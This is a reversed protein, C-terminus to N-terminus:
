FLCFFLIMLLLPLFNSLLSLWIRGSSTDKVELQVAAPDIVKLFDSGEEKRSVFSQGDRYKVTLKADEIEIKQVKGEKADNLVQTLPIEKLPEQTKSFSLFFSVGLFIILLYFILNKLNFRFQYRKFTKKQGNKPLLKEEDSM